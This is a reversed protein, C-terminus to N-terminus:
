YGLRNSCYFHMEIKHATNEYDPDFYMRTMRNFQASTLFCVGILAELLDVEACYKSYNHREQLEKNTAKAKDIIVKCTQLEM